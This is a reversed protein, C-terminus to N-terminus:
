ILAHHQRCLWRVELPKSYDDHHADVITSGCEECPLKKIVGKKLAYSVKGHAKKKEPNALMWKRAKTYMERPHSKRYAVDYEYSNTSM